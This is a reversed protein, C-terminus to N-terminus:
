VLAGFATRLPSEPAEGSAELYALVSPVTTLRDLWPLYIRAFADQLEAALEDDTTTQTVVHEHFDVGRLQAGTRLLAPAGSAHLDEITRPLETRSSGVVLLEVHHAVSVFTNWRSAVVHIAQTIGGESRCFLGRPGEFRAAQLVPRVRAFAHDFRERLEKAPVLGREPFTVKQAASALKMPSLRKGDDAVVAKWRGAVDLALLLDAGRADVARFLYPTALGEVPPLVVLRYRSMLDTLMPPRTGADPAADLVLVSLQTGLTLQVRVRATGLLELLRGGVFSLQTSGERTSVAELTTGRLVHNWVMEYFAPEM